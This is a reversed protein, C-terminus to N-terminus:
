LGFQQRIRRRAQEYRPLWEYWENALLTPHINKELLLPIVQRATEEDYAMLARIVAFVQRLTPCIGAIYWRLWREIQDASGAIMIDVLSDGNDVSSTLYGPDSRLYELVDSVQITTHAFRQQLTIRRSKM